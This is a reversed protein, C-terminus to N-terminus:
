PPTPGADGVVPEAAPLTGPRLVNVVFRSQGSAVPSAALIQVDAITGPPAHFVAEALGYEDAQVTVSTLESGAFRGLDLSTFTVPMSAGEPGVSVRLAVSGGQQIQEFRRGLRHIVPVGEGPQASAFVRGPEAVGLYERRYAADEVFRGRDFGLKSGTLVNLREPHEGTRVAEVAALTQASADFGVGPTQGYDLPDVGSTAEADESARMTGNSGLTGPAPALDTKPREVGGIVEDGPQPDGDLRPGGDTSSRALADDLLGDDNDNVFLKPGGPGVGLWVAFVILVLLLVALVVTLPTNKKFQM